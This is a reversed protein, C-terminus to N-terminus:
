AQAADSWTTTAAEARATSTASAMRAVRRQGSATRRPPQAADSRWRRVDEATEVYSFLELDGKSIVGAEVMAEFNIIKRWFEEGFLLIPIPSIKGTQILTLTEFLEDMTGFGGPFAVMARARM